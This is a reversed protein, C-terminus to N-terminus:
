GFRFSGFCFSLKEHEVSDYANSLSIFPPWLRIAVCNSGYFVATESLIVNAICKLWGDRKAPQSEKVSTVGALLTICNPLVFGIPTKRTVLVCDQNQYVLPVNSYM